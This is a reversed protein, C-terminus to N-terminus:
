TINLVLILCVKCTQINMAFSIAFEKCFIMDSAYLLTHLPREDKGPLMADEGEVNSILNLPNDVSGQRMMLQRPTLEFTPHTSAIDACQHMTNVAWVVLTDVLQSSNSRYM